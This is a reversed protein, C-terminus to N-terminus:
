EESLNKIRSIIDSQDILGNLIIDGEIDLEGEISIRGILDNSNDDSYIYKIKDMDGAKNAWELISLNIDEMIIGQEIMTNRDFTFRIIWPLHDDSGEDGEGEGEGENFIRYMDLLETDGEIISTGENHLPDYYISCNTVVDKLTTYELINKAYQAKNKDYRYDETLYIKISPSRINSSVHLLERLRPIGRTVNSKASVGAYHFTNLTMQTAPEGISQAAVPGVMEGAMVLSKYFQQKILISIKNYKEKTIAYEFILIKPSLHIDILMELLYTNNFISPLVLTKKLKDNSSLIDLPSIDSLKNHNKKPLGCINSIIRQIHIPYNVNNQPEGNFIVNIIFERHALLTKFNNSLIEQYKQNKKFRIGCPRTLYKKWAISSEFLFKKDMSDDGTLSLKTVIIPQSEVYISNMGDSGYM